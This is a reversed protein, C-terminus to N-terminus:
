LDITFIKHSYHLEYMFKTENKIFTFPRDGIFSNHRKRNIINGNIDLVILRDSKPKQEKIVSVGNNSVVCKSPNDLKLKFIVNQNEVDILAVNNEYDNSKVIVLCFRKNESYNKFGFFGIERREARNVKQIRYFVEGEKNTHEVQPKQYKWRNQYNLEEQKELDEIHKKSINIKITHEEKKIGNESAKFVIDFSEKNTTKEIDKKSNLFIKKLFNLM